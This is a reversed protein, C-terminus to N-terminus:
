EFGGPGTQEPIPLPLKARDAPPLLIHLKEIALNRVAPSPDTLASQILPIAAPATAALHSLSFIANYRLSSNKDRLAQAALEIAGPARASCAGLTAIANLRVPLHDDSLAQEIAPLLLDAEALTAQSPTSTHLNFLLLLGWSAGARLQPAARKDKHLDALPPPLKQAQDRVFKELFFEDASMQQILIPIAATRQQQLPELVWPKVTAHELQLASQILSEHEPTPAPTETNLFNRSFLFWGLLLVLAVTALVVLEKSDWNAPNRITSQTKTM